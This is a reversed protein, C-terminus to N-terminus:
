AVNPLQEPESSEKQIARARNEWVQLIEAFELLRHRSRAWEADTLIRGLRVNLANRAAPEVAAAGSSRWPLTRRAANEIQQRDIM